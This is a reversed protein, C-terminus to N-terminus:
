FGQPIFVILSLVMSLAIIIGMVMLVKESFSRKRKYAKKKTM